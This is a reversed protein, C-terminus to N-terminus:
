KKKNEACLHKAVSKAWNEPMRVSIGQWTYDNLLYVKSSYKQIWPNVNQHFNVSATKEFAFRAMTPNMKKLWDLKNKSDSICIFDNGTCYIEHRMKGDFFFYYGQGLADNMDFDTRWRSISYKGSPHPYSSTVIVSSTNREIAQEFSLDSLERECDNKSWFSSTLLVYDQFTGNQFVPGMAALRDKIFGIRMSAFFPKKMNSIASYADAPMSSTGLQIASYGTMAWLTKPTMQSFDKTFISKTTRGNNTIMAAVEEMNPSPNIFVFDTM